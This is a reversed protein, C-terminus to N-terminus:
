KAGTEVVADLWDGHGLNQHDTGNVTKLALDQVGTVDVDVDIPADGSRVDASKWRRTGDGWVEFVVGVPKAVGDAGPKIASLVEDDVGVQARFRNFAGALDYHLDWETHSGLGHEYTRGAVKLLGGDVSRDRGLRRWLNRWTERIFTPEWESLRGRLPVALAVETEASKESVTGDYWVSRIAIKYSRGPALGLLTAHPEFAIGVPAGDIEVRYGARVHNETRWQVRLGNAGVPVAAVGTPPQVPYAYEEASAFAVSWSVTQRRRSDITVTAFGLHNAFSAAVARGAADTASVAAIHWTSKGRPLGFVLTYPDDAMVRSKGALAPASTSGREAIEILDVWGQTIHRSTSLLVPRDARAPVITLVRVDSAPVDVIVGHEWAGLYSGSWFDYVHYPTKEDLGLEKWSVLRTFVGEDRNNFVGVVDYTRDLHHVKLDVIPKLLNESKFLDLPRIDVAPYVRRLMSVRSAPLDSLRDSTLLAQGTLGFITAWARAIGDPLPPRLELVDPDSYWAVNHLFNWQQVAMAAIQYGDWSQVVDGATRSGNVHGMAPLPIGWCGLLYSDPGIGARIAPLTRRYVENAIDAPEGEPLPGKMRRQVEPRRYQTLVVTQGDIKFYTYGKERLSKFLDTLYPNTNPHTPDLLFDGEWSKAASEGKEDLLFAGVRDVVERNSQGHPALWLGADLGLARISRALGDMGLGRFRADITTWDRNDGQGRGKGQWGDDLQVLRAGYPALNKAIWRANALVEEPTIEQYYYYWSCWGSPPVPYLSKDVPTYYPVELVTKFYSDVVRGDRATLQDRIPDFTADALPTEVEGLTTIMVDDRLPPKTRAPIIRPWRTVPGAAEAWVPTAQPSPTAAVLPATAFLTIM